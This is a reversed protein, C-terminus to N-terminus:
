DILEVSNTKINNQVLNTINRHLISLVQHEYNTNDLLASAIKQELERHNQSLYRGISGLKNTSYCDNAYLTLYKKYYEVISSKKLQQKIFNLVENNAINKTNANKIISQLAQDLNSMIEKSNESTNGNSSSSEELKDYSWKEFKNNVFDIINQKLINNVLNKHTDLLLKASHQEYMRKNDSVALGPTSLKNSYFYNNAYMTIYENYQQILKDSITELKSEAIYNKMQKTLDNIVNNSISKQKSDMIGVNNNLLMELKQYSWKKFDNINNMYKIINPDTITQNEILTNLWNYIEIGVKDNQQSIDFLKKFQNVINNNPSYKETISNCQYNNDKKNQYLEIFPHRGDDICRCIIELFYSKALKIDFTIENENTFLTNQELKDKLCKINDIHAQQYSVFKDIEQQKKSFENEYSLRYKKYKTQIEEYMTKNNEAIYKVIYCKCNENFQIKYAPIGIHQNYERQIKEDIEKNKIKCIKYEDCTILYDKGCLKYAHNRFFKNYDIQKYQKTISNLMGPQQKKIYDILWNKYEKIHNCSKLDDFPSIKVVRSIMVKRLENNKTDFLKLINQLSKPRKSNRYFSNHLIDIAYQKLVKDELIKNISEDNQKLLDLCDEIIEKETKNYFYKNYIEEKQAVIENHKRVNNFASYFFYSIGDESKKKKITFLSDCKSKFKELQAIQDKTLEIGNTTYQNPSGYIINNFKNTGSKLFNFLLSDQVIPKIEYDILEFDDLIKDDEIKNKDDEITNDEIVSDEITNEDNTEKLTLNNFKQNLDINNENININDNEDDQNIININTDYDDKEKMAFSDNYAFTIILGLLILKKM